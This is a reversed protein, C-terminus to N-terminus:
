VVSKRDLEIKDCFGVNPIPKDLIFEHSTPNETTKFVEVGEYYAIIDFESPYNNFYKGFRFTLGIFSFPRHFSITIKPPNTFTGDSGSMEKSVYGQYYPVKGSGVELPLLNNGDLIFKNHEFTLYRKEVNDGFDVDDINSYYMHGNDVMSNETSADPTLIGFNVRMYSFNRVEKNMQEKYQESVSYM